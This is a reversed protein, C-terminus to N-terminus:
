CILFNKFCILIYIKLDDLLLFNGLEKVHQHVNPIKIRVLESLVEIDTILGDMTRTYYDPLIIEVLMKLLWFTIEEDNTVLM